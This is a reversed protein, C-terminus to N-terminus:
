IIRSLDENNTTVRLHLYECVCSDRREREREREYARTSERDRERTCARETEGERTTIQTVTAKRYNRVLRGM